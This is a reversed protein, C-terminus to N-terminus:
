ECSHIDVCNKRNRKISAYLVLLILCDHKCNLLRDKGMRKKKKVKEYNKRTKTNM